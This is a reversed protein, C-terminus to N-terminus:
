LALRLGVRLQQKTVLCLLIMFHAVYVLLAGMVLQPKAAKIKAIEALV